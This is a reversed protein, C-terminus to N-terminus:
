RYRVPRFGHNPRRPWSALVPPPDFLPDLEPLAQLAAFTRGTRQISIKEIDGAPRAALEPTIREIPFWGNPANTWAVVFGDVEEDTWNVTLASFLISQALTVKRTKRDALRTELAELRQLRRIYKSNM